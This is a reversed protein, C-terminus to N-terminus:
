ILGGNIDNELFAEITMVRTNHKTAPLHSMHKMLGINTRVTAITLQQNEPLHFGLPVQSDHGTKGKHEWGRKENAWRERKEWKTRDRRHGAICHLLYNKTAKMGDDHRPGRKIRKEM